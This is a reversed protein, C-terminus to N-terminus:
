FDPDVNLSKLKEATGIDIQWYSQGNSRKQAVLGWGDSKNTDAKILYIDDSYRKASFGSLNEGKQLFFERVPAELEKPSGSQFATRKECASLLLFALLFFLIIRAKM